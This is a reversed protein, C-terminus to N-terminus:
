GQSVKFQIVDGPQLHQLGKTIIMKDSELNALILVPDRSNCYKGIVAGAASLWAGSDLAEVSRQFSQM